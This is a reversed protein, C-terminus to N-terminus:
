GYNENGETAVDQQTSRHWALVKVLYKNIKRIEESQIGSFWTREGPIISGDHM